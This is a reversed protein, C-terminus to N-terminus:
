SVLARLGLLIFLAMPSLAIMTKARDLSWLRRLTTGITLLCVALAVAIMGADDAHAPQLHMFPLSTAFGVLFWGLFNRWPIGFFRGPTKWKWAGKSVAWPDIMLDFFVLVLSDALTRVLPHVGLSFLVVCTLFFSAYKLLVWAGTVEIPYVKLLAIRSPFFEHSLNYRYTVGFVNFPTKLSILESVTSVAGAVVLLLLGEWGFFYFAHVSVLGLILIWNLRIKGAVLRIVIYAGVVAFYLFKLAEM